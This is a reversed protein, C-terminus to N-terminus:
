KVSLSKTWYPLAGRTTGIYEGKANYAYYTSGLDFTVINGPAKVGSTKLNYVYALDYEDFLREDSRTLSNNSAIGTYRQNRVLNELIYCGDGLYLNVGRVNTTAKITKGDSIDIYNNYTDSYSDSYDVEADHLHIEGAVDFEASSRTGNQSLYITFSFKQAHHAPRDTFNIEIYSHRSNGDLSAQAISSSPHSRAKHVTIGARHLASLPLADDLNGYATTNDDQMFMFPTLYIRLVSGSSVELDTLDDASINEGDLTISVEELIDPFVDNINAIGSHAEPAEVSEPNMPDMVEMRANASSMVTMGLTMAAALAVSFFRKM